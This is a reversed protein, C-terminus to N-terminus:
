VRCRRLGGPAILETMRQGAPLAEEKVYEVGDISCVLEAVADVTLPRRSVRPLEPRVGASESAAAIARFYDRGAPPEGRARYPPMAIVADAGATRAETAYSAALRATGASVGLM